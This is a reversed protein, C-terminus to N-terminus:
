PAVKQADLRWLANLPLAYLNPGFPLAESGSYLLVGRHFRKGTAEAFLRLPKLDDPTLTAGAKVEIGVLRGGRAELVLDVEHGSSTRFHFMAPRIRSWTAQKRIEMAVFNELLPGGLAADLRLRDASIGLLYAMFGSDALLLKPAKVLRKGLNAAWPPLTQVLFAIQLLAMYRRLTTLPIGASRSLDSFNLLTAARAALLALLRPMATLDEINSVERVDRQLITTIYSGFWAERREGGQSVVEPYGGRLMREVLSGAPEPEPPLLPFSEAFLADVFGERVGEIEGQSLSWLTLVEMRGALTDALRPLLLVNASGTLLFRGPRRDRDVSAKIALFLEPARQIEDLVVPERLRRVFASPDARATALVAADDLTLYKARHPGEALSAALTSKGVQRAGHLLVVPRDALAETVSPALNRPIM